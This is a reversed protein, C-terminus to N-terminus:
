PGTDPSHHGSQDTRYFFVGLRVRETADPKGDDDTQCSAALRNVDKLLAMGQARAQAEIRDASAPTLHNYFVAREMFPPADSLLNEVAAAIHDGVNDGFFYVKQATDAPGIFADQHLILLGQNDEEVLKQRLLEELITRPRIDRSISQVLREFSAGTEAYRPLPLPTGEADTTQTGGLWAGIVSAVTSVKRQVATDTSLRADRLAKVDRRHVGTLISIRSDTQPKDELRFDAEAIEVYVGKVIQYFAPATVGNAILARVLPRLLRKLISAFLSAPTQPTPDTM